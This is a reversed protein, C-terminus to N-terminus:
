PMNFPVPTNFNDNFLPKYKGLFIGGDEKICWIVNNTDLVIWIDSSYPCKEIKSNPFKKVINTYATQQSCGCIVLVFV